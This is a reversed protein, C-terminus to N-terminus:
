ASASLRTHKKPLSYERGGLTQNEQDLEVVAERPHKAVM